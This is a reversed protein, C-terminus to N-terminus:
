KFSPRPLDFDSLSKFISCHQSQLHLVLGHVLSLRCGRSAPCPFSVKRSTRGSLMWFSCLGALEKIKTWFFGNQVDSRWSQLIIYKHQKLGHLNQYNKILIISFKYLFRCFLLRTHNSMSFMTYPAFLILLTLLILCLRVPSTLPLALIWKM